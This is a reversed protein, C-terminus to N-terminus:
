LGCIYTVGQWVKNDLYDRQKTTYGCWSTGYVTFKKGGPAAHKTAQGMYYYCLISLTIIILIIKSRDM